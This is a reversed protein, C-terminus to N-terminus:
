IYSEQWSVAGEENFYEVFNNRIEESIKKNRTANKDKFLGQDLNFESAAAAAIIAETRNWDLNQTLFNHLICCAKVISVTNKVDTEISKQLIRWRHSLIGFTNEIVRRARSLRFVFYIYM